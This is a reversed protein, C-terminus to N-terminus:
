NWPRGEVLSSLGQAFTSDLVARFGAPSPHVGDPIYDLPSPYAVIGGPFPTFAPAYGPLPAFGAAYCALPALFPPHPCDGFRNQLVGRNHAFFCGPTRRAIDLKRQGLQVFAQNYSLTNLGPFTRYLQIFDYHLYDYDVLVVSLGPRAALAYDVIHEIDAEIGDMALDQMWAPWNGYGDGMKDHLDNGGIVLLLVEAPPSMILSAALYDLKHGDNDAWQSATSGSIATLEWTVTVSGYGLDRLAEPLPTVMGASWSDGALVIRQIAPAHGGEEGEADVADAADADGGAEGDIADAADGRADGDPRADVAEARAEEPAADLTEEAQGEDAVSSEDAQTDAQAADADPRLVEDGGGGCCPLSSLLLGLVVSSLLLAGRTKM